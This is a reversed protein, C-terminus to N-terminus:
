AAQKKCGDAAVYLSVFVILYLSIFILFDKKGERESWLHSFIDRYMLFQSELKPFWTM